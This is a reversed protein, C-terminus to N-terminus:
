TQEQSKYNVILAYIIPKLKKFKHCVTGGFLERENKRNSVLVSTDGGASRVLGGGQLDKRRGHKIGKEVFV